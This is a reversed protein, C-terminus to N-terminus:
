KKTMTALNLMTTKYSAQMPSVLNTNMNLYEMKLYHNETNQSARMDGSISYKINKVFNLILCSRTNRIRLNRFRKYISYKQPPAPPFCIPNKQILVLCLLVVSEKNM